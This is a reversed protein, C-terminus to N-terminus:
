CRSSRKNLGGFVRKSKLTAIWYNERAELLKVKQETTSKDPIEVEEIAMISFQCKLENDFTTLNSRTLKHCTSASEIAHIAIECSKINNKIHSKHNAFRVKLTTSTM